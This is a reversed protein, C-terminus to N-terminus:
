YVECLIEGGIKRKRAQDGTMVGEPTSVIVMGFGRMVLPINGAPRYVRRGPKSVRKYHHLKVPQALKIVLKQEEVAYSSVYKTEKLVDLVARSLKNNPATLQTHRVMEANRISTILNSLHDM